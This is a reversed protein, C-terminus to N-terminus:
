YSENFEVLLDCNQMYALTSINMDEYGAGNFIGIELLIMDHIEEAIDNAIDTVFYEMLITSINLEQRDSDILLYHLYGSMLDYPSLTLSVEDSSHIRILRELRYQPECLSLIVVRDIM